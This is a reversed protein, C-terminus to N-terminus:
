PCTYMLPLWKPRIFISQELSYKAADYQQPVEMLLRGLTRHAIDNSNTYSM